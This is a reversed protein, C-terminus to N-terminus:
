TNYFVTLPSSPQATSGPTTSYHTTANQDRLVDRRNRLVDTRVFIIVKMQGMSFAYM